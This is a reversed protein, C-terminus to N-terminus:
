ARSRTGIFAAHFGERWLHQFRGDGQALLLRCPGRGHQNFQELTVRIQLQVLRDVGVGQGGLQALATVAAALEALCGAGIATKLTVVAIREPLAISHDAGPQGVGVYRALLAAGMKEAKEIVM